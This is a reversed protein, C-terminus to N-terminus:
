ENNEKKYTYNKNGKRRKRNNINKCIKSINSVSCGEYKAAETMSNFKRIIEGTDLNIQLVADKHNGYKGKKMEEEPVDYARLARTVTHKGCNLEKAIDIQKMGSIFKEYILQYDYKPCGEGGTTANYGNQYSDYYKIWFKERQFAKKVPCEEIKNIKFHESGYKKIAYHLPSHDKRNYSEWIHKSFREPLSTVTVGVYPKNNIDNTILYIYAM